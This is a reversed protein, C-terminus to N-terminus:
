NFKGIWEMSRVYVSWFMYAWDKGLKPKLRALNDFDVHPSCGTSSIGIKLQLYAQRNTHKYPAKRGWRFFICVQFKTCVIGKVMDLFPNKTKKEFFHVQHGSAEFFQRIVQIKWM